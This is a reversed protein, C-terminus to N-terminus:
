KSLKAGALARRDFMPVGAIAGCAFLVGMYFLDGQLMTRYFPVARAYCEVLGSMTNAYDSHSAWVAFNTVLFFLTAPVLVCCAGRLGLSLPTRSRRLLMGLLVSSTMIGYVALLVPLSNYAPEWLDSIGLIALPVMAAIIPRSFYCGAFVAAAAIPTFGWEPQLFKIRGIVGIAVLLAFVLVDQLNQQRKRDM